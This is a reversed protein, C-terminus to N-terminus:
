KETNGPYLRLKFNLPESFQSNNNIRNFYTSTRLQPSPAVATIYPNRSSSSSTLNSYDQMPNEFNSLYHTNPLHNNQPSEILPILKPINPNDTLKIKKSINYDQQIDDEVSQTDFDMTRKNHWKNDDSLMVHNHILLNYRELIEHILAFHYAMQRVYYFLHEDVQAPVYYNLYIYEYKKSLFSGIDLNALKNININTFNQKKALVIDFFDNENGLNNKVYDKLNVNDIDYLQIKINKRERCYNEYSKVLSIPLFAFHMNLMNTLFCKYFNASCYKHSDKETFYNEYFIKIFMNQIDNINRSNSKNYILPFLLMNIFGVDKESYNIDINLNQLFNHFKIKDYLTSM